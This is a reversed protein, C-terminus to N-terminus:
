FMVVKEGKKPADLATYYINILELMKGMVDKKEAMSSDGLTLFQDMWALWNDAAESMAFSFCCFNNQSSFNYSEYHIQIQLVFNVCSYVTNYTFHSNAHNMHM